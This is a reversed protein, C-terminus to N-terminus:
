QLTHAFANSLSYPIFNKYKLFEESHKWKLSVSSLHNEGLWYWRSYLEREKLDLMHKSVWAKAIALISQLM